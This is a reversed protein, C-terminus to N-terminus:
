FRAAAELTGGKARPEWYLVTGGSRSTTILVVGVVAGLLGAGLFVDARLAASAADQSARVAGADTCSPATTCHKRADSMSSLASLGFYTGVGLSVVGAGGIVFGATRWPSSPAREPLRPPPAETRPPPTAPGPNSEAPVRDLDPVTITVLQGEGTVEFGTSWNKRGPASLLLSHAGPDVPLPSGSSDTPLEAGDLVLKAGASNVVTKPLVVAVRSLRPTLTALHEKARQVRDDRGDRRAMALADNYKLWASALKGAQEYCMALLLVTGGAPDLQHSRGLKPCADAHNGQEMLQKGEQFLTEALTEKQDQAHASSTGAFSVVLGV